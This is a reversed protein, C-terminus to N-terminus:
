TPSMARLRDSVTDPSLSSGRLSKTDTEIDAACRMQYWYSLSHRWSKDDQFVSVAGSGDLYAAGHFYCLHLCVNKVNEIGTV